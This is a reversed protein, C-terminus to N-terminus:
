QPKETFARKNPGHLFCHSSLAILLLPPHKENSLVRTFFHNRRTQTQHPLSFYCASVVKKLYVSTLPPLLFMVVVM